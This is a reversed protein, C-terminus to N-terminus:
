KIINVESIYLIQSTCLSEVDCVSPALQTQNVTSIYICFNLLVVNSINQTKKARNRSHRM